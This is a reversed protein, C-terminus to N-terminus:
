SKKTPFLELENVSVHGPAEVTGLAAAPAKSIWLTIYTFAKRQDRLKLRLKRKKVVHPASLPTWAPDTISEPATKTQAGYVQVTMGATSTILQLVAVKQKAKLDVLLGEAMRPASAPNVQATWATAHDGDIARSPDGFEGAPYGYPDYTSAADTDLLIAAQQSEEGAQEGAAPATAGPTTAGPASAAPTSPTTTSAGKPTVAALPIKPPKAATSPLKATPTSAAGGPPAPTTTPATAAPSSATPAQAVVDTLVHPSPAGKGIAAVAAAAAGLVLVAVAAAAASARWSSTGLSGPAGQGCSLCWEQAPALEAGCNACARVPARRPDHSEGGAAPVTAEADQPQTQAQGDASAQPPDTLTTSM